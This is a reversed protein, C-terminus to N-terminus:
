KHDKDGDKLPVPTIGRKELETRKKKTLASKWVPMEIKQPIFAAFIGFAKTQKEKADIMRPRVESILPLNPQDNVSQKEICAKAHALYIITEGAKFHRPIFPIRKCYTGIREGEALFHQPTPYESGVTMLFAPEKTPDCVFCPHLKDDCDEHLKFLRKPNVETLGRTAHLGGGCVPCSKLPFPLRDCGIAMFSGVLYLGGVKRYNCLRRPEQAM